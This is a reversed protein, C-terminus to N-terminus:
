LAPRLDFSDAWAAVVDVPVLEQAIRGGEARVPALREWLETGLWDQGVAGSWDITGAEQVALGAMATWLGMAPRVDVDPASRAAAVATATGAPDFDGWYWAVGRLPGQGAVDVALSPVQAPFTKGAGWVVAGIRHGPCDRLAEVAVWYTDSNEVVLVDPGPGVVAAPAPPALRMCALMPLTLRGPGFMKTRELHELRKERAFIEASRYRVPVIPLNAPDVRGLWDNITTLDDFLAASLVPLSSAWGLELRWPFTAWPRGTEARRAAPVLVHRPLAPVTSADWAQKPLELVATSALQQLAEHLAAAQGPDGVFRPAARNWLRWLADLEIKVSGTALITGRLTAIESPRLTM